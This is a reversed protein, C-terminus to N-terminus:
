NQGLRNLRVDQGRRARVALWLALAWMPASGLVAVSVAAVVGDMPLGTLRPVVCAMLVWLLALAGVANHSRSPRPAAWLAYAHLLGLVWISFLRLWDSAWAANAYIAVAGAAAVVCRLVWQARGGLMRHAPGPHPGRPVVTSHAM